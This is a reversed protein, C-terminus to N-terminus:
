GHIRFTPTPRSAPLYSHLWPGPTPGQHATPLVDAPIAARTVLLFDLPQLLEAGLAVPQDLRQGGGRQAAMLRLPSGRELLGPLHEATIGQGTIICAGLIGQQDPRPQHTLPTGQHANIGLQRTLQQSCVPRPGPCVFPSVTYWKSFAFMM